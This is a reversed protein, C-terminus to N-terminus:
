RIVEPNAELHDLLKRAAQRVGNMAPHSIVDEPKADEPVHEILSDLRLFMDRLPSAVEDKELARMLGSDDFVECIAESFSSMENIGNVWLAEQRARDSLEHLGDTVDNWRVIVSM